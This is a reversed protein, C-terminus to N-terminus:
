LIHDRSLYHYLGAPVGEAGAVLVYGETPHLNGSSPNARLAWRSGGHEKWATLGLALEFFGGLGLRDLPRPPVSGPRHVDGWSAALDEAAPPLEVVPAGTWTRFPEPQNAWDLFGPGPAYRGPGHSSRAHYHRAAEARPQEDM